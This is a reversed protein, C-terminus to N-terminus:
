DNYESQELEYTDRSYKDSELVKIREDLMDIKTMREKTKRDEILRNFMDRMKTLWEISADKYKHGCECPTDWCKECDSLSM